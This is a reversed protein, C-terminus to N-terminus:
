CYPRGCSWYIPVSLPAVGRVHQFCALSATRAQCSARQRRDRRPVHVLTPGNCRALTGAHWRAVSEPVCAVWRHRGCHCCQNETFTVEIGVSL